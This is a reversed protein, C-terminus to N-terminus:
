FKIGGAGEVTSPLIKSTKMESTFSLLLKPEEDEDDAEDM